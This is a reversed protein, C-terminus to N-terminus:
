ICLLVAKSVSQRDDTMQNPSPILYSGLQFRDSGVPRRPVEVEKPYFEKIFQPVSNQINDGIQSAIQGVESVWGIKYDRSPVLM